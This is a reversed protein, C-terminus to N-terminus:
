SQDIEPTATATPPSQLGLAANLADEYEVGAIVVHAESAGLARTEWAEDTGDIKESMM